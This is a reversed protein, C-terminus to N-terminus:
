KEDRERSEGNQKQYFKPIREVERPNICGIKRKRLSGKVREEYEEEEEDIQEQVAEAKGKSEHPKKPEKAQRGAKQKCEM